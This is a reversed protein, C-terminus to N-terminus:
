GSWETGEAAAGHGVSVEINIIGGTQEEAKRKVHKKNQM